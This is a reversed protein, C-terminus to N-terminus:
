TCTWLDLVSWKENSKLDIYILNFACSGWKRQFRIGQTNEGCPCEDSSGSIIEKGKAYKKRNYIKKRQRFLTFHVKFLDDNQAKMIKVWKAM